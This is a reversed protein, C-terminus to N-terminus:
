LAAACHANLAPLDAAPLELVWRLPSHNGLQGVDRSMWRITPTVTMTWLSEPSVTHTVFTGPVSKGAVFSDQISLGPLLEAEEARGALRQAMRPDGAEDIAATLAMVVTELQSVSPFMVMARHGTDGQCSFSTAVGAAWLYRLLPAIGVDVCAQQGAAALHTQRHENTGGGCAPCSRHPYTRRHKMRGTEARHLYDLPLSLGALTYLSAAWTRTLTGSGAIGCGSTGPM